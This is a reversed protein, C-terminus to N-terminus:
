SASSLNHSKEAQIFMQTSEESLKIVHGIVQREIGRKLYERRFYYGRDLIQIELV